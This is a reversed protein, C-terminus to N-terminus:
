KRSVDDKLRGGIFGEGARTEMDVGLPRSLGALDMLWSEAEAGKMVVPRCNSIRAPFIKAQVLGDPSLLATLIVTKSSIERPPSFVFNGLSYSILRGKYLEFGQVVHPHHGLVLDAGSDVALHALERQAAGPSRALEIGWHFSAVVYNSSKKAEMITRAVMETNYTTAVGPTSNRAAWGAPVVWTFAVFAVRVGHSELYCPQYAEASNMGAGCRSIGEADLGEITESLAKDGYDKAHNNALSVVDIGGIKLARASDPPGRFTFEKGPEPYGSSAICCELNVFTFDANTLAEQVASFPYELGYRSLYPTVGGGFNVDGGASVTVCKEVQKKFGVLDFDFDKHAESQSKQKCGSDSILLILTILFLSILFIIRRVNRKCYKGCLVM